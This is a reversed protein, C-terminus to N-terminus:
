GNRGYDDDWPLVVFLLLMGGALVVGWRDGERQLTVAISSLHCSRWASLLRPAELAIPQVAGARADRDDSTAM